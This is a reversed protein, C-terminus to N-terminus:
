LLKKFLNEDGKCFSRLKDFWANSKIKFMIPLRDKGTSVSKCVIGEFTVSPCRSSKVLSELEKGVPGVHVLNPIHVSDCLKLFERPGIIGKKYLNVDFLVVDHTDTEVHNGAFSNPVFFEFFCVANEVRSDTFIRGLSDGYKNKILDIAKVLTPNENGLLQTRSGFRIFSKHKRAWEARINSGDLKDFCYCHLGYQIRNSIEPYHKM